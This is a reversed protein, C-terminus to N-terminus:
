GGLLDPLEACREVRDPLEEPGRVRRGRAGVGPPRHVDLELEVGIFALDWRQEDLLRPGDSRASAVAVRGGRSACEFAPPVGTSACPLFAAASVRAVLQSSTSERM